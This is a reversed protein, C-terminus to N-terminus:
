VGLLQKFSLELDVFFGRIGFDRIEHFEVFLEVEFPVKVHDHLPAIVIKRFDVLLFNTQAQGRFENKLDSNAKKVQMRHIDRMSIDFWRIYHNFIICYFYAIESEGSFLIIGLGSKARERILGWFDM